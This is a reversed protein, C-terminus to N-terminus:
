AIKRPYRKPQLEKVCELHAKGGGMDPRRPVIIDFEDFPKKCEYCREEDTTM